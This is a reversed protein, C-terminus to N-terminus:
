LVRMLFALAILGVLVVRVRRSLLYPRVLLWIRYRETMPSAALTGGGRLRTMPSVWSGRIGGAPYLFQCPYSPDAAEGITIQSGICSAHFLGVNSTEAGLEGKQFCLLHQMVMHDHIDEPVRTFRRHCALSLPRLGPLPLQM